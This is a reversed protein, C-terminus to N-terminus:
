VNQMIINKLFGDYESYISVETELQEKQPSEYSQNLEDLEARKLM